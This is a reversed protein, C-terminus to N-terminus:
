GGGPQKPLVGGLTHRLERQGEALEHLTEAQRDQTTSIERLTEQTSDLFQTHSQVIPVLVTSHLSTAAERAMWFVAALIVVPVGFREAVRMAVDLVNSKTEDTM